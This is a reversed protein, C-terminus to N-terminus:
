GNCLWTDLFGFNVDTNYLKFKVMSKKTEADETIVVEIANGGASAGEVQRTGKGHVLEVSDNVVAFPIDNLTVTPTSILSQSCGAM